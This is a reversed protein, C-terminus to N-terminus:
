DTMKFLVPLTYYVSVAKGGQKGPIWKEPLHNMSELVKLVEDGCGGGIDRLIKANEVNGNSDVVFRVTVKGQIGKEQAKKPYVMHEYLYNYMKSTACKEISEKTSENECGPFRPMEEVEFYINDEPYKSQDIPSPPPPPPYSNFPETPPPPPPYVTSQNIDDNNQYKSCANIALMLIIVMPLAILYRWKNNAKTKYMMKIRNKILSNIFYNAINYQVGSQLQNIL